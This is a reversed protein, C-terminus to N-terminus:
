PTQTIRFPQETILNGAEDYAKDTSKILFRFIGNTISKLIMDAIPSAIFYEYDEQTSKRNHINREIREGTPTIQFQHVETLIGNESVNLNKFDYVTRLGTKEDDFEVEIGGEKFIIDYNKGNITLQQM